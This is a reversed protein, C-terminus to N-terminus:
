PSVVPWEPGPDIGLRQARERVSTSVQRHVEREDVRSSYGDAFIVQGDVLVTHVSGPGMTLALVHCVNNDPYSEAARPDRIVIDARKGTELSGLESALGAAAAAHITQMELLATPSVPDAYTQSVFRAVRMNESPPADFAGDTALSIRTGARYREAMKFSVEGAIGLSLFGAPCWVIQCGSERVAAEETDDLINAHVIVTQEDLVGLERLHVIQAIGTMSRYIEAGMPVYGAHLHLPVGNEAACAHAAQLLEPSGTGEGYVFIYGRVLADADRNRYIEQDIQKMSREHDIPARAM